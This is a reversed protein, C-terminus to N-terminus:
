LNGPVEPRESAPPYKDDQADGSIPEPEGGQRLDDDDGTTESRERRRKSWWPWLALAGVGIIGLVTGFKGLLEPTTTSYTLTVNKSTPLVVMFNPTARWPGDAGSVTWNPFYSIKVVVPVNTRSVHFAISHDTTRIDSVKVSPLAELNLENNAPLSPQPADTRTVGPPRARKWFTPGGSVLPRGLIDLRRADAPTTAPADWWPVAVEDQWDGAAVGPIVVPEFPLADVLQVDRVEYISWDLPAAGDLDPSRAVEILDPSADAAQKAATSEAIYYRVGLARLYAVGVDFEAITKYPLGRQPNSANGPGSLTAVAMFHYPTTASSEYYLGEMTTIRSHTWYPIMMLALPTGYSGIGDNPEWLSRGPPLKDLTDMLGKYEPFAKTLGSEPGDVNEYGSFNWRAWYDLFGRTQHARVLAFMTVAIVLVTVSVARVIPHTRDLESIPPATAPAAEVADDVAVPASAPVPPLWEYWRDPAARALVLAVARIVEAAGVMALLVLGLYWFPLLRLNWVPSDTFTDWFRFALGALTVIVALELTSRRRRIVGVVIAVMILPVMWAVYAPYWPFMYEVYQEIPSYGMDTTYALTALLPVTWVATLLGGVVGIAATPGLNRVPRRFLWIVAGAVVAFVGVVLHSMVVAALLVAPLWLRRRHELSYALAGLFFLALALAFTFSFEGAATSAFNGGMIHQNGAILTDDPGVGPNGKFFFFIVAGVAFLPPGPNPVRLGRGFYYAAAPLAIAGAATVIKFAINYPLIVDIAVIVLAPLPFYFQGAPFGAYWDPSWGAIRWQSLLHDRLYAPWWVHAGTDGGAPTTNRLMLDPHFQFFMFLCCAAVVAVGAWLEIRDWWPRRPEAVPPADLGPEPEPAHSPASETVVM